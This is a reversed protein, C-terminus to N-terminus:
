IKAFTHSLIEAIEVSHTHFLCFNVAMCIKEDFWNIYNSERFKQLFITATFNLLKWVSNYM